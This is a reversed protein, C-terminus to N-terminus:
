CGTLQQQYVPPTNANAAQTYLFYCNDDSVQNDGDFDWGIYTNEIGQYQISFDNSLKIQKEIDTNDLFGWKLRTEFIGDQNLDIDLLDDRNPVPQSSYSKMMSKYNVLDNAQKVSVSIQNIVEERSDTSLNLFRPFATVALVGLIVIVVILEVLTFGNLKM